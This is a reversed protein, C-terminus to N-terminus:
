YEGGVEERTLARTIPVLGRFLDAHTTGYCPIERGAQAWVTAFHSHTHVIGELSTFKRYLYLHTLTDSSSRMSGDVTRGSDLQLLVIDGPTLDDYDIGSPKIGVIGSEREIGSANGWTLLALGTQGIRRNAECVEERLRDYRM